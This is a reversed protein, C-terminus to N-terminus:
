MYMGTYVTQLRAGTLKIYMGTFVTQLRVDTLKIYMGTYHKYVPVQLNSIFVPISQRYRAGMLIIYMGTFVTQLRAGTLKIYMYMGTFHTYLRRHLYDSRM